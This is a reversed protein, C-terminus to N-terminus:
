NSAPNGVVTGPLTFGYRELIKQGVDSKVFAMFARAAEKNRASKLVIAGQEIRPYTDPPIEWRKGDKMAPSVALSLAV